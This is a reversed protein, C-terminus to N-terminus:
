QVVFEEFFLRKASDEGLRENIRGLMDGTIKAKAEAGMTDKVTLESLYALLESRLVPMAREFLDAKPQDALEIRMKMRLYRANEPENLNVLFPELAVLPGMPMIGTPDEPVDSQPPPPPPVPFLAMYAVFGTAALNVVVMLLTILPLKSGSSPAQEEPKKEEAKKAAM